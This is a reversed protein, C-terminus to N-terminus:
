FNCNIVMREKIKSYDIHRGIQVTPFFYCGMVAKQDGTGTTGIGRENMDELM